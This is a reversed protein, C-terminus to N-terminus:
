HNRAPAECHRNALRREDLLLRPDDRPNQHQRDHQQDPQAIGPLTQNISPEETLLILEVSGQLPHVTFNPPEGVHLEQRFAHRKRTAVHKLGLSDRKIQSVTSRVIESQHGDFAHRHTQWHLQGDRVLEHLRESAIRRQLPDCGTRAVIHRGHLSRQSQHLGVQDVAQFRVSFQRAQHNESWLLAARQVRGFVQCKERREALDRADCQM